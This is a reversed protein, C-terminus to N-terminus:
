LLYMSFFTVCIYVNVPIYNYGLTGQLPLLFNYGLCFQGIDNTKIM